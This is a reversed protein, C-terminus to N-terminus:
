PFILFTRRRIPIRHIENCPTKTNSQLRSQMWMKTCVQLPSLNTQKLEM